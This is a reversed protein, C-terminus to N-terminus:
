DPLFPRIDSGNKWERRIFTGKLETIAPHVDVKGVRERIKRLAAETLEYKKRNLITVSPFSLFHDREYDRFPRDQDAFKNAIDSGM